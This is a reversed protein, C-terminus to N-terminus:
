VFGNRLSSRRLRGECCAAPAGGAPVQAVGLDFRRPAGEVHETLLHGRPECDLGAGARDEAAGAVLPDLSRRELGRLQEGSAHARGRVDDALLHEGELVAAPARQSQPWLAGCRDAAGVDFMAHVLATLRHLEPVQRAEEAVLPGLRPAVPLEPLDARLRDARLVGRDVGLPDDEELPQELLHTDAIDAQAEGTEACGLGAALIALEQLGVQPGVFLRSESSTRPRISSFGKRAKSM